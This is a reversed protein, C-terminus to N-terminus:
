HQSPAFFDDLESDERAMDPDSTVRSRDAPTMGLATLLQRLQATLALLQSTTPKSYRLKAEVRAAAAVILIDSNKLVGIPANAIILNWMEIEGEDFNQPHQAPDIPSRSKADVRKRSPNKLWAGSREQIASPKPPRGAM